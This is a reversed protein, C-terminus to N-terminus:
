EGCSDSFSLNTELSERASETAKKLPCSWSLLFSSLAGPSLADVAASVSCDPFLKWDPQLAELCQRLYRSPCTTGLTILTAPLCGISIHGDLCLPIFHSRSISLSLSFCLHHQPRHNSTDRFSFTSHISACQIIPSNIYMIVSLRDSINLM